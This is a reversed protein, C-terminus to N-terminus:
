IQALNKEFEQTLARDNIAQNNEKLLLYSLILTIKQDATEKKDLSKYASQLLKNAIYLSLITVTILIIHTSIQNNNITTLLKELQSNVSYAILLLLTIFLTFQHLAKKQHEKLKTEWYKKLQYLKQNEEIM